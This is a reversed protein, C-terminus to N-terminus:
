RRDWESRLARVHEAIEETTTFHTRRLPKWRSFQGEGSGEIPTQPEGGVPVADEAFGGQVPTDTTKDHAEILLDATVARYGRQGAARVLDRWYAVPISGRQKWAAVTSYPVGLDRGLEAMSPWLGTIDDVSNM